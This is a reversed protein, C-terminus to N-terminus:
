GQARLVSLARREGETGSGMSRVHHHQCYAYKGLKAHGCFLYPGGDNLPWMCGNNDALTVYLGYGDTSPIEHTEFVPATKFKLLLKKAPRKTKKTKFEGDSIRQQITKQLPYDPFKSGHHNYHGIISNRTAGVADAIQRASIGERWVSKILYTRQDPKLNRWKTM